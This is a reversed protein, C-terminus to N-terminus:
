HRKAPDTLQLNRFWWSIEDTNVNRQREVTIWVYFPTSQLEALPQIRVKVMFHDTNADGLFTEILERQFKFEGNLESLKEIGDGQTFREYAEMTKADAAYYESLPRQPDRSLFQRTSLHHVEHLQNRQLLELVKDALMEAHTQLERNRLVLRTPVYVLMFLSLFLGLWVFGYGTSQEANRNLLRLANGGIFLGILPVIWLLISVLALPAALGILLSAIAWASITKYNPLAPTDSAVEM